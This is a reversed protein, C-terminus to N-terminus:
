VSVNKQNLLERFLEEVQRVTKRIDFMREARIRAKEGMDSALQKNRLLTLIADSISGVNGQPVVFGTVKDETTERLGFNDSVITPKGMAMAEITAIGLGEALRNPCHVFVDMVSLISCIDSRWGTFIFNKVINAQKVEEKLKDRFLGNFELDDGVILFVANPFEKVVLSAAQILESHGKGAELRSVSGIIPTDLSLGFEKRIEEGIATADYKEIDVGGYFTVIRAKPVKMQAQDLATAQSIAWYVDVFRALIKKIKQGGGIGAKRCVCRVGSHRAALVGPIHYHLDNNLVVLKIRRKKIFGALRFSAPLDRLALNWLATSYSKLIALPIPRKQPQSSISTPSYNKEAKMHLNIVEVDLDKINNVDEGETPYYFAVIPNFVNRNLKHLFERLFAASGGYGFGSDIFLINHSIGNGAM